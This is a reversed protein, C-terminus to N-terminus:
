VFMCVGNPLPTQRSPQIKGGGVFGTEGQGQTSSSSESRSGSNGPDVDSGSGSKGLGITARKAMVQHSAARM